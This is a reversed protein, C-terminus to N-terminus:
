IIDFLNEMVNILQFPKVLRWLSWFMLLTTVVIIARNKRSIEKKLQKNEALLTDLQISKIDQKIHKNEAVLLSLQTNKIEEKLQKNEALLTDLKEKNLSDKRTTGESQHM